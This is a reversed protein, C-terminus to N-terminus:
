EDEKSMQDAMKIASVLSSPDAQNLGAINEATGHDPSTRVIPIGLTINIGNKFDLTKLPILAQDHYMCIAADYKERMPKTFITDASFPGSINFGIKQLNKIAPIIVKQEEKGLTGGEGAHPNLASIVIKPNNFGFKNVLSHHLIKTTSIIKSKTIASPVEKLAMHVTLPVVKLEPSALMMITEEESTNTLDSLFGTHGKHKFGYKYLVAKNIPATVIARCEKKITLHVATKIAEIVCASNEFNIQGSFIPSLNKIDLVPLYDKFFTKCEIPNSIFKLPPCNPLITLAKHCGIYIFPALNEKQRFNWAKAIIEPGIGAPDGM